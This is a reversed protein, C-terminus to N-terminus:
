CRWVCLLLQIPPAHAYPEPAGPACAAASPLHPDVPLPLAAVAQHFELSPGGQLALADPHCRCIRTPPNPAPTEPQDGTCPCCHDAPQPALKDAPASCCWGPPAALLLAPLLVVARTFRRMGSHYARPPPNTRV